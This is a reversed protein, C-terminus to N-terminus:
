GSTPSPAPFVRSRRRVTCSRPKVSTRRCHGRARIIRAIALVTPDCCAATQGVLASGVGLSDEPRYVPEEAAYDGDATRPYDYVRAGLFVFRDGALWELFAIDEARAEASGPAPAKGLGTITDRMLTQMAGFDTVAMQVDGLALRVGEILAAARDDGVPGLHVQIVSLRRGEREVLPHFMARVPFGAEAIEGMISDVLFPRDPQAIELLDRGLDRGDLATWRRLRILPADGKLTAGFRWLDAFAAALDAAPADPMEEASLDRQIQAIFAAEAGVPPGAKHGLAGAFAAALTDADLGPMAPHLSAGKM